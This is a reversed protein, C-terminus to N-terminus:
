ERIKKLIDIYKDISEISNMETVSVLISKELEPYYDNLPIGPLIDNKYFTDMFYKLDLDHSLVFENFFGSTFNLRFKKLGSIKEAFYHARALCTEAINNLGKQGALSLYVLFALANLSHNTCINSTAKCKRIHQERAQFTLVYAKKEM